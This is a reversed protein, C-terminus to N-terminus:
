FENDRDERGHLHLWFRGREIKKYAKAADVVNSEGFWLADGKHADISLTAALM